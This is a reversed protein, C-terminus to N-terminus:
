SAWVGRWKLLTGMKVQRTDGDTPQFHMGNWYLFLMGVDRFECEYVGPEIPRYRSLQWPSHPGPWYLPKMVPSIVAGSAHHVAGCKDCRKPWNRQVYLMSVRMPASCRGCSFTNM